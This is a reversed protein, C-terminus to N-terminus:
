QSAGKKRREQRKKKDCVKCYSGFGLKGNGTYFNEKNAALIEKCMRCEKTLEKEEAFARNRENRRLQKQYDHQAKMPANHRKERKHTADCQKCWSQYGDTSHRNLGFDSVSKSEQCKSCKRQKTKITM